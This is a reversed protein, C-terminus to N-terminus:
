TGNRRRDRNKLPDDISGPEVEPDLQTAASGTPNRAESVEAVRPGDAAPPNLRVPRAPACKQVMEREMGIRDGVGDVDRRRGGPLRDDVGKQGADGLRQGVLGREGPGRPACVDGREGLRVRRDNGTVRGAASDRRLEGCAPQRDVGLAQPPVAGRDPGSADRGIVACDVPGEIGGRDRLEHRLNGLGQGDNAVPVDHHYGAARQQRPATESSRCPVDVADAAEVVFQPDRDLLDCTSVAERRSPEVVASCRKDRRREDLLVAVDEEIM